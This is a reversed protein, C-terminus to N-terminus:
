ADKEPDKGNSKLEKRKRVNDVTAGIGFIALMSTGVGIPNIAGTKAWLLAANAITQRIQDQRRLDQFRLKAAAVIQDLELQLESRTVRTLPDALSRTKSECGYIWVLFCCILIVAITEYREHNFLTSLLKKMTDNM